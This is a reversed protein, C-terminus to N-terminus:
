AKSRWAGGVPVGLAWGLLRFVRRHMRSRHEREPLRTALAARLRRLNVRAEALQGTRRFYVTVVAALAVLRLMGALMAGWVGGGVEHAALVRWGIWIGLGGLLSVSLGPTTRALRSGARM